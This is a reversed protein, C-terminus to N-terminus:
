FINGPLEYVVGSSDPVTMNAFFCPCAILNVVGKFVDYPYTEDSERVFVRNIGAYSGLSWIGLGTYSGLLGPEVGSYISLGM